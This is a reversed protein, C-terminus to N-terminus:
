AGIIFVTALGAPTAAPLCVDTPRKRINIGYLFIILTQRKMDELCIRSTDDTLIIEGAGSSKTSFGAIAVHLASVFLLDRRDRACANRSPSISGARVLTVWCALMAAPDEGACTAFVSDRVLRDVGTKSRRQAGLNTCAGRQRLRAPEDM